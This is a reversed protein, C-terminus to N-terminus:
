YEQLNDFRTCQETFRLKVPGVPGNRQKAIIIEAVGKDDTGPNYVEDRYVFMIIDADQEIAGSERLDSMMPRKDKREELKRNLQSLAIVPTDFEKAAMKLSRSILAIEQERPCKKLVPMLQMYDVIVLSIGGKHIKEIKRLEFPIKEIPINDDIVYMNMTSLTGVAQYMRDGEDVNYTDNKIKTFDVKARGTILRDAIQAKSMEYSFVVIAGQHKSREDSREAINMALASKGMSPRGAIILLDPAELGTIRKDLDILGTPKWLKAGNPDAMKEYDKVRDKIIDKIHRYSSSASRSAIDAIKDGAEVILETINSEPDRSKRSIDTTITILQRLLAHEEVIKAYYVTNGSSPVCDQLTALYSYGGVEDLENVSKLQGGLLVEDIPQKLDILELMARFIHQHAPTYFYNPVLIGMVDNILENNYIISGLVAQEAEHDNPITKHEISSFIM